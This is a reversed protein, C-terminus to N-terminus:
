DIWTKVWRRISDKDRNKQLSIKEVKSSYLDNQYLINSLLDVAQSISDYIAIEPSYDKAASISGKSSQAVVPVGSLAAERLTMGYGESPACSLLVKIRSYFERLELSTMEGLFEVSSELGESQLMRRFRKEDPGSGVVYVPSDIRRTRMERMISVFQELGRERQIRGVYGVGERQFETSNSVKSFDIPIPACVFSAGKRVKPELDLIQFESVVRISNALNLSFRVICFKIYAKLKWFKPQSYVDGHFQIQIKSGKFFFRKLFYCKLFGIWPDGAIIMNPYQKAKRYRLVTLILQSIHTSGTEIFELHKLHNEKQVKPFNKVGMVSLPHTESGFHSSFEAAYRELRILMTEVQPVRADLTRFVILPAVRESTKNM